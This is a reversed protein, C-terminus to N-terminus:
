RVQPRKGWASGRVRRNPFPRPWTNGSGSAADAKADRRLVPTWSPPPWSSGVATNERRPSNALIRRRAVVAWPIPLIDWFRVAAVPAAPAVHGHAPIAGAVRL